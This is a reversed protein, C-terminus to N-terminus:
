SFPLRTAIDVRHQEGLPGLGARVNMQCWQVDGQVDAGAENKGRRLEHM